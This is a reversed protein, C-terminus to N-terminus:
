SRVDWEHVNWLVLREVNGLAPGRVTDLHATVEINFYIPFVPLQDATLRMMEIVQRDRESRDLTAHFADFLRDYEPSIWGGRNNGLWRNAPGGIQAGTFMSYM